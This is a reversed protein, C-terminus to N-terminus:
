NEDEAELEEIEEILSDREKILEMYDEDDELELGDVYDLLGCNYAIEDVAKLVQSPLYQNMFKDYCDDLMEDYGDVYNDPDLEFNDIKTNLKDLQNRLETLKTM